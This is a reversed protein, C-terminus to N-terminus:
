IIELKNQLLFLLDNALCLHQFKEMGLFRHAGDAAHIGEFAPDDGAAHCKRLLRLLEPQRIGLTNKDDSNLAGALGKTGLRDALLPM